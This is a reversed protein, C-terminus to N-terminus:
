RRDAPLACAATGGPLRHRNDAVIRYVGHAVRRFPPLTLLAGLVAWGKGARLLLRAVAQAGGHVAGTPTIWLAEYEARRQAVGLSALDAFQWPTISCDPRLLRELFAVSTTCFRCDGDYVLVPRTRM